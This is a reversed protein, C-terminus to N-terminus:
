PKWGKQAMRHQSRRVIDDLDVARLGAGKYVWPPCEPDINGRDFSHLMDLLYVPTAPYPAANWLQRLMPRLNDGYSALRARARRWDAARRDRAAQESREWREARDAMVADAAPQQEAVLDALLPLRERELRQKRALAARKRSTDQFPGSRLYRDFRM